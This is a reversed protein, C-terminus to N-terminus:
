LYHGVLSLSFLDVGVDSTLLSSDVRYRTWEGQIELDVTSPANGDRDTSVLLSFGGGFTVDANTSSATTGGATRDIEWQFGGGRAYLDFRETVPAVIVGTGYFGKAELQGLRGDFEGLDVYGIEFALHTLPQIGIYVDGVTSEDDFGADDLHSVGVSVGSFWGPQPRFAEVSRPTGSLAVLLILVLCGTITRSSM